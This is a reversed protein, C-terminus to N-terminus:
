HIERIVRAPAGAVVVADPLDHTVVSNAGVVVRNGISVGGTVVCNAGFWCSDGIRVPGKSVMGQWTIPLEPDDFRHDADAILCNNAFMCHAGISVLVTAAVMVNHNLITGEGIRLSATEPYLAFWCGPEILVWPGIEARDEDLAELLNGDVPFRLFARRKSFHWRLRLRRDPRRNREYYLWKRLYLELARSREGM